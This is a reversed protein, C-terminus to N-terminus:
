FIQDTPRCTYEEPIEKLEEFIGNNIKWCKERSKDPIYSIKFNQCYKMLEEEKDEDYFILETVCIDGINTYRVPELM